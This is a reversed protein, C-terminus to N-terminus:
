ACMLQRCEEDLEQTTDQLLWEQFHKRFVYFRPRDKSENEFHQTEVVLLSGDNNTKVTHGFFRFAATEPSFLKKHQYWRCDRKQFIYVAGANTLFTSDMYAGIFVTNGKRDIAVSHGFGTYPSFDNPVLTVERKWGQTTKRFVFVIGACTYFHSDSESGIVACSRNENVAVVYSKDNSAAEGKILKELYFEDNVFPDITNPDIM